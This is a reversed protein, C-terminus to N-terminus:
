LPPTKHLELFEKYSVVKRTGAVDPLIETVVGTIIELKGSFLRLEVKNFGTGKCTHCVPVEGGRMEAATSSYFVGRGNCTSCTIKVTETRKVSM